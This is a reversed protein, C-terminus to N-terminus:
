TPKHRKKNNFMIKETIIPLKEDDTAKLAQPTGWPEM